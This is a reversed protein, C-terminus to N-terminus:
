SICTDKDRSGQRDLTERNHATLCVNLKKNVHVGDIAKKTVGNAGYAQPSTVEDDGKRNKERQCTQNDHLQKDRASPRCQHM